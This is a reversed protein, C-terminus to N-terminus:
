EKPPMPGDVGQGTAAGLAGVPDVAGPLLPLTGLRGPVNPAFSSLVARYGCVSAVGAVTLTRLM